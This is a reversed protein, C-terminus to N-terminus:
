PTQASTAIAMTWLSLRSAEIVAIPIKAVPIAADVKSISACSRGKVPSIEILGSGSSCTIDSARASRIKHAVADTGPVIVGTGQQKKSLDLCSHRPGDQGRKISAV